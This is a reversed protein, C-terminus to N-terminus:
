IAWCTMSTSCSFIAGSYDAGADYERVVRGLRDYCIQLHQGGQPDDQYRLNGALDYGYRWVGSHPEAVSVRRGLTDYTYAVRTAYNWGSEDPSFRAHTSLLRHRPGVEAHLNELSHDWM